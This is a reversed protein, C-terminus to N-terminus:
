NAHGIWPGKLAKLINEPRCICPEATGMYVQRIALAMKSLEIRFIESNTTHYFFGGEQCSESKPVMSSMGQPLVLSM